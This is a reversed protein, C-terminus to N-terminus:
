FQLWSFSLKQQKNYALAPLPMKLCNLLVFTTKLWKKKTKIKTFDIDPALYFQRYRPVHSFDYAIGNSIFQNTFGGLMGDAGYGVAMNIWKPFTSEEKLFSHINGSLWYTQGNYDKFLRELESSGLVNPRQLAYETPSYSLKLKVRQEKWILEQAIFLSTGSANAFLDGWSAGWEESFGDFVEISTQVFFGYAGGILTSSKESFGAWQMMKKGVLGEYYCSYAHGIKDMQQWEKNDNFFHFKSLPYDAYWLQYLGLMAATYGVSNSGVVIQKRLKYNISDVQQANAAISCCFSFFLLVKLKALYHRNRKM